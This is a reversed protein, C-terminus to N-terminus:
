VNRRKKKRIRSAYLSALNALLTPDDPNQALGETLGKEKEAPLQRDYFDLLGSATQM